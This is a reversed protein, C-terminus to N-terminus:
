PRVGERRSVQRWVSESAKGVPGGGPDGAHGSEMEELLQFLSSAVAAEMSLGEAGTEPATLDPHAAILDTPTDGRFVAENRVLRKLFSLNTKLSGQATGDRKKPPEVRTEDLAVRMKGIAADRTPAWVAIKAIMPDYNLSVEGPGTFATDVRVFAGQPLAIHGIPGPAPLFHHPDEAYLRVEISSGRREPIAPLKFLGSALLLQWAVLDVGTVFETV